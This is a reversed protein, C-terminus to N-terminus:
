FMVESVRHALQYSPSCHVSKNMMVACPAQFKGNANGWLATWTLWSLQWDSLMSTLTKSTPALLHAVPCLDSEALTSLMDVWQKFPQLPILSLPAFWPIMLHANGPPSFMGSCPFSTLFRSDLDITFHSHDSLLSLCFALSDLCPLVWEHNMDDSSASWSLPSSKGPWWSSCDSWDSTQTSHLM